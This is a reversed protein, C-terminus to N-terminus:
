IVTVKNRLKFLMYLRNPIILRLELSVNLTALFSRETFGVLYNM